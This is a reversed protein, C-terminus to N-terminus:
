RTRPVAVVDLGTLDPLVAAGDAARSVPLVAVVAAVPIPGYIHPFPEDADDPVEWRVSSGAAECAPLDVVLM